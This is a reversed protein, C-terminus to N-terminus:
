RGLAGPEAIVGDANQLAREAEAPTTPAYVLVKRGTAHQARADWSPSAAIEDVVFDPRSLFDLLFRRLVFTEWAPRGADKFLGTIQGRPVEFALQRIRRLSLPDFSMLAIPGHYAGIEQVVESELAGAGNRAKIEVLVPVRGQVAELAEGLTPITETSEGLHLKRLESLTVASVPRPDDTMRALTDDHIVVVHGDATKHVDLEIGFGANAASRFAALSNEPHVTDFHLGRHAYPQSTLWEPTRPRFFGGIAFWYLATLAAFVGVLALLWGGFSM